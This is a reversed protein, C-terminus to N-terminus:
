ISAVVVVVVGCCIFTISNIEDVMAFSQHRPDADFGQERKRECTVRFVLSGILECSLYGTKVM